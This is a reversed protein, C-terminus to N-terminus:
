DYEGRITDKIVWYIISGGGWIFFLGLALVIIQYTQPGPELLSNGPNGPQYFVTVEQSVSYKTKILEEAEERKMGLDQGTYIRDGTYKKGNVRFSYELKVHTRQYSDDEIKAATITAFTTPWNKEILGDITAIGTPVAMALGLLVMAIEKFLIKLEIERGKIRIVKFNIGTFPTRKKKPKWTMRASGLGETYGARFSPSKVIEPGEVILRWFRYAIYIIWISYIGIHGYAFLMFLDKKFIGQLLQLLIAAPIGYILLIGFFYLVPKLITDLCVVGLAKISYLVTEKGMPGFFQKKHAHYVLSYIGYIFVSLFFLILVSDQVFQFQQANIGPPQEVQNLRQRLFWGGFIIMAAIVMLGSAWLMFRAANSQVPGASFLKSTGKLHNLYNHYVMNPTLKPNNSRMWMPTDPNFMFFGIKDGPSIGPDVVHNKQTGAAQKIEPSDKNEKYYLLWSTKGNKKKWQLDVAIGSTSKLHDYNGTQRKYSANEEHSDNKNLWDLRGMRKYVASYLEELIEGISLGKCDVVYESGEVLGPIVVDDLKLLVLHFDGRNKDQDLAWKIEKNVWDSAVSEQTLFLVFVHADKVGQELWEEIEQEHHLSEGGQDQDFWVDARGEAELQKFFYQAFLVNKNSYSIFLSLESDPSKKIGPVGPPRDAGIVHDQEVWYVPIGTKKHLSELWEGTRKKSNGCISAYEDMYKRHKIVQKEGSRIDQEGTRHQQIWIGAYANMRIYMLKDDIKVDPIIGIDSGYDEVMQRHRNGEIYIIFTLREVGALWWVEQLTGKEGHYFHSIGAM